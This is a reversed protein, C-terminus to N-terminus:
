REEEVTEIRIEAEVTGATGEVSQAKAIIETSQENGYIAAVLRQYREQLHYRRLKRNRTLEGTDPDFEHHLNAFKKVQIPSPLASNVKNIEQKILRYVEPKQSLDLFTTYTIKNRDAWKGVNDYNIIIVVAPYSKQGDTLVWADRVYPSFKLQSEISQPALRDGGALDIIDNIRDNFVLHNNDKISCSDGTFVWDDRLVSKTQQPDNYYGVFNGPHCCVLEGQETIRTDIGGLIAGQTELRIEENASCSLIGTEASQYISKLPVNLAHFFRIVDPSLLAGTSYCTRINSLGLGDRLPRFLMFNAIINLIKKSIGPDKKNLRMDAMEFGFPLFLNLAFKKIGKAGIIRAQTKAAQGEWIRSNTFLINPGIERMDQQQTEPEEAFNLTTASLLHCGIGFIQETMWVPPLYSFINDKEKWPDINLLADASAKITKYSHTTGKPNTDTAGSTYVISCIDEANGRELNEEFVGPHEEAYKEGTQLVQNYGMLIPQKYDALGKYNWYIIKNLQPLEGIIELIKDVQEQDEVVAYKAGSHNLIYKIEEPTLDSFMGVSIGRNAQIALEACYWQPQNDGIIAVRDGPEFGSSLLGLALYKVELYYEKWTRRQWIGYHKYRMALYKDAYRNYNYQLVKPWTDGKEQINEIADARYMNNIEGSILGDM